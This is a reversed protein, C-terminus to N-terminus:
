PRERRFWALLVVGLTLIACLWAPSDGIKLYLSDGSGPKIEGTRFDEQFLNSMTRIHGNQDIVATIGTNAARLLPTRTEVARFVAISFHQYPASSRGYWADNTINVLIRAGNNGHWSPFSERTVSWSAQGPVAWTWRLPTNAPPL